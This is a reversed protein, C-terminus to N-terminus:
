GQMQVAPVTICSDPHCHTFVRVEVLFDMELLFSSNVLVVFFHKSRYYIQSKLQQLIERSHFCMFEKAKVATFRRTINSISLEM